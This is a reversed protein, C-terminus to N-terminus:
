TIQIKRTNTKKAVKAKPVHVRLVGRKYDAKIKSEDVDDQLRFTRSFRGYFSEVRHFTEDDEEKRHERVGDITLAGDEFSVNVDEKEVDPLDAKILYGKKTESIDISPSWDTEVDTNNQTQPFRSSMLRGYRNFFDDMEHIPHWETLKM